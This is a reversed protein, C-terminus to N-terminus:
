GYLHTGRGNGEIVTGSAHSSTIPTTTAAGILGGSM